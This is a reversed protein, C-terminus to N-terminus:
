KTNFFSNMSHAFISCANFWLLGLRENYNEKFTNIIAKMFAKIFLDPNSIIGKYNPHQAILNDLYDVLPTPSELCTIILNLSVSIMNILSEESQQQVFHLNNKGGIGLFDSYFSIIFNQFDPGIFQLSTIMESKESPSFDSFM